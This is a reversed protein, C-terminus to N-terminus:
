YPLATEPQVEGYPVEPYMLALGVDATDGPELTDPGGVFMVGLYNETFRNGDLIAVRQEAVEIKRIEESVIQTEPMAWLNFVIGVATRRDRQLFNRAPDGLL